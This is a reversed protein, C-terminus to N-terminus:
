LTRVQTCPKAKLFSELLCAHCPTPWVSALLWLVWTSACFMVPTRNKPTPQTRSVSCCPELSLFYLRYWLNTKHIKWITTSRSPDGNGEVACRRCDLSDLGPFDGGPPVKSRTSHEAQHPPFPWQPLRSPRQVGVMLSKSEPFSPLPRPGNASSQCLRKVGRGQNLNQV